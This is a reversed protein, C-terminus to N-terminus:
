IRRGDVPSLEPLSLARDPPDLRQRAAGCVRLRLLRGASADDANQKGALDGIRCRDRGSHAANTETIPLRHPLPQQNAFSKQAAFLLAARGVL